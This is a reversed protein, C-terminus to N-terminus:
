SIQILELSSIVFAFCCLCFLHGALRSPFTLTHYSTYQHYLMALRPLRWLSVKRVKRYGSNGDGLLLKERVM